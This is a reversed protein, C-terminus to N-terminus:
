SLKATLHAWGRTTHQHLREARGALEYDPYRRFFEEFVIRGELRAVPAGICHHIGEGFGLHRKQERHIDLEDPNPFRREDRNAAAFSLWVWSGAPITQGHVAHDSLTIRALGTVPAEWRTIEEVAAPIISPDKLMERRDDPRGQFRHFANSLLCATSDIGAMFLIFCLGRPEDHELEGAQEAKVMASLLDDGPSRRRDAIQDAIYAALKAGAERAVDPVDFLEEQEPDSQRIEFDYMLGHLYLLDEDPFALLHSITSVPLRWTFGEALDPEPQQELEDLLRIVESRIRGELGAVIRPTFQRHVVKRIREHAPPDTNIVIGPGFNDPYFNQTDDLEVGQANSYVQWNRAAAQVDAFRSLTWFNREENYYVPHEDRLVRYFPYPEAQVAASFPDYNFQEAVSEM